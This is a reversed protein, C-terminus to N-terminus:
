STAPREKEFAAVSFVHLQEPYPACKIGVCGRTTPDVHKSLEAAERTLEATVANGRALAFMLRARNMSFRFGGHVALQAAQVLDIGRGASYRAYKRQKLPWGFGVTLARQCVAIEERTGCFNLTLSAIKKGPKFTGDGDLWGIAYARAAEASPFTGGNEFVTRLAAITMRYLVLSREVRLVAGRGGSSKWKKHPIRPYVKRIPVGLKSFVAKAATPDDSTAHLVDLHMRSKPIGVELLADIVARLLTPTVSVIGWENGAKKSGEAQYFGLLWYLLEPRAFRRLTLPERRYYVTMAGDVDTVFYEDHTQYLLWDFRTSATPRARFPEADEVSVKMVTGAALRGFHWVPLAVDISPRSKPRRAFAFFTRGKM